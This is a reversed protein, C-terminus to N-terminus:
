STEGICFSYSCKGRINNGENGCNRMQVSLPCPLFSFYRFYYARFITTTTATTAFGRGTADDGDGDDGADEERQEIPL